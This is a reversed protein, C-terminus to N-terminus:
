REIYSHAPYQGYRGARPPRGIQNAATPPAGAVMPQNYHGGTRGASDDVAVVPHGYSNGPPFTSADAGRKPRRIRLERLQGGTGPFPPLIRPDRQRPVLYPPPHIGIPPSPVIIAPVEVYVPPPPPACWVSPILVWQVCTM